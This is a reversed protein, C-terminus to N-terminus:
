LDYYARIGLSVIHYALTGTSLTDTTDQLASSEFYGKGVNLYRYALELTLKRYCAYDLVAGFEFSFQNTKTGSFILSSPASTNSLPLQQFGSTRNASYGLGVLIGPQLRSRTATLLNEILFVDSKIQYSYALDNFLPSNLQWIQGNDPFNRVPLYSFSTNLQWANNSFSRVGFGFFATGENTWKHSNVYTNGFGNYLSLQQTLGPQTFLLAPDIKLYVADFQSANVALSLMFLFSSFINIKVKM